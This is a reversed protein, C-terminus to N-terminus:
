KLRYGLGYESQIRLPIIKPRLGTLRAALARTNVGDIGAARCLQEHTVLERSSLLDYMRQEPSTLETWATATNETEARRQRSLVAIWARLEEEMIPTIVYASAGKLLAQVGDVYSEVIVIQEVNVHAKATDTIVIDPSSDVLVESLVDRLKSELALDYLDLAVRVSMHRKQM